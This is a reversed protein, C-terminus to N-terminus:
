TGGNRQVAKYLVVSVYKSRFRHTFGFAVVSRPAERNEIYLHNLLVNLPPPLNESADRTQPYGLVPHRLQPPVLPPERTEDENVPYVNNYSSDPSRPVEFGVVTRQEQLNIMNHIKDM